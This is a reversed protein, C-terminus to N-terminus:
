MSFEDQLLSLQPLFSSDIAVSQSVITIVPETRHTSPGNNAMYRYCVESYIRKLNVFNENENNKM